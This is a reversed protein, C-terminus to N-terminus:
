MCHTLNSISFGSLQDGESLAALNEIQGADSHSALLSVSPLNTTGLTVQGSFM